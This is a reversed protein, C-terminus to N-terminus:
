RPNFGRGGNQVDAVVGDELIVIRLFRRSGFNYVWEERYVELAYHGHSQSIGGFNQRYTPRLTTVYGIDRRTLPEGCTELLRYKSLGEVIFSASCDGAEAKPFGYGGTEIKSLRGNRLHLVQLLKNSGFNYTWRESEAIEDPLGLGGYSQVDRFDPEGCAALIDAARSEVTVLRSGCRIADSAQVVPMVSFVAILLALARVTLTVSSSFIQDLTM